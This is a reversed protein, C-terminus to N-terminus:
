KAGGCLDVRQKGMNKAYLTVDAGGSVATAPGNSTYQWGSASGGATGDGADGNTILQDCGAVPPPGTDVIISVSDSGCAGPADVNSLPMTPGCIM